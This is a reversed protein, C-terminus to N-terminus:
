MNLHVLHIKQSARERMKPRFRRKLQEIYRMGMSCVYLGYNVMQFEWQTGHQDWILETRNKEQSQEPRNHATGNHTKTSTFDKIAKTIHSFSEPLIDHSKIESLFTEKNKTKNTDDDKEM